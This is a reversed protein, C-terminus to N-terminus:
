RIGYYSLVTHPCQLPRSLTMKQGFLNTLPAPWQGPKEAVDNNWLREVLKGMCEVEGSTTSLALDPITNKTGVHSSKGETARNDKLGKRKM